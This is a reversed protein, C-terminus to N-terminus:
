MGATTPLRGFGHMQSTSLVASLSLTYFRTAQPRHGPVLSGNTMNMARRHTQHGGMRGKLGVEMRSIQNDIQISVGYDGPKM